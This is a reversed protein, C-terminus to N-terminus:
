VDEEEGQYPPSQSQGKGAGFNLSGKWPHLPSWRPHPHVPMHPHSDGHTNWTHEHACGRATM